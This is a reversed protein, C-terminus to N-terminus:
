VFSRSCDKARHDDGEVDGGAPEDAGERARARAREHEPEGRVRETVRHRVLVDRGAAELRQAAERREAEEGRRAASEVWDDDARDSGRHGVELM